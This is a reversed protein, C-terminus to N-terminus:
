GPASGRRCPGCGKGARRVSGGHLVQGIRDVHLGPEVGVRADLMVLHNEDTADGRNFPRPQEALDGLTHGFVLEVQDPLRLDLLVTVLLDHRGIARANGVEMEDSVEFAFLLEAADALRLNQNVRRNVLRQGHREEFRQGAAREQHTALVGVPHSRAETDVGSRHETVSEVLDVKEDIRDARQDLVLRPALLQGSRRALVHFGHVADPSNTRLVRRRIRSVARRRYRGAASMRFVCLADRFIGKTNLLRARLISIEEGRLFGKGPRQRHCRGKFMYSGTKDSKVMKICKTFQKGTGTKLTAVVKKAM